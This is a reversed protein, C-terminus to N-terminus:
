RNATPAESANVQCIHSKLMADIGGVLVRDQEGARLKENIERITYKKERLM